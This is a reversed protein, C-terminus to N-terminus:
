RRRAPKRRLLPRSHHHAAGTPGLKAFASRRGDMQAHLPKHVYPFLGGTAVGWALFAVLFGQAARGAAMAHASVLPLVVVPAAMWVVFGFVAGFLWGGLKDNAARRFVWGYLLGAATFAIALIAATLPRSLRMVQDAVVAFTGFGWLVAGAPAACVLGAIAGAALPRQLPGADMGHAQLFTMM